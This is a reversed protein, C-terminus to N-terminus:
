RLGLARQASVLGCGMAARYTKIADICKGESIQRKCESMLAEESCQHDDKSTLAIHATSVQELDASSEQPM